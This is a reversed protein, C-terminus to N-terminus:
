GHTHDDDHDHDHGGTTITQPIGELARRRLLASVGDRAERLRQAVVELLLPHDPGLPDAHIVPLKLAAGSERAARDTKQHIIGTFLLYPVMVIQRAGLRACREIGEATTPHTVRQYAVEVGAYDGLEALVRATKSVSSNSDLDSSGGGVVLIFTEQAPLAEATRALAEEVRAKLLEALKFHFGLPTSYRVLVGPFDERVRRIATNIEAKMHYAAGLFLPVAVVEGGADARRAAADLGSRIDPESLELFCVHVPTTLYAALNAAFEHFHAVAEAVRSGHGILVIEPQTM